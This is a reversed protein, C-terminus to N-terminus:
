EICVTFNINKFIKFSFQSWYRNIDLCCNYLLRQAPPTFLWFTVLFPRVNRVLNIEPRSGEGVVGWKLGSIAPPGGGCPATFYLVRRAPSRSDHSNGWGYMMIPVNGAFLYVPHSSSVQVLRHYLTHDWWILKFYFFLLKSIKYNM